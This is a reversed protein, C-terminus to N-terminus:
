AQQHVLGTSVHGQGWKQIIGEEEYVHVIVDEM